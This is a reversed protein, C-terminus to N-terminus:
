ELDDLVVLCVLDDADMHDSGASRIHDRFCGERHLEAECDVIDDVRDMREGGEAFREFMGTLREAPIRGLHATAYLLRAARDIM